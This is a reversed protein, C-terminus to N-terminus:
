MGHKRLIDNVTDRTEKDYSDFDFVNRVVSGIGDEPFRQLHKVVNVVERTSYPYQIEGEDAMNRLESFAKVLRSLTEEPVDPGYQRLMEMEAARSPNDIAHCSFLDGLAAFFDNGLFPFGPRNALVIIRFDPHTRLLAKTDGDGQVQHDHPVIRRGDSLIMQGSEVLTKLVCTVHTPAKDAEDIVLVHGAEVAKVLPSDEHVILGERVTPQLTLSQVTTDRHLQLYERPRNLLNLLRDVLKNKGVGQNGILLLHEGLLLDQLMAEMTALNQQTDYFLTEPIKTKALPAYLPASTKGITLVGDRIRCQIIPTGDGDRIGAGALSRDSLQGLRNELAERPLAPLFRSLSAKRIAHAASEHPFKEFRRAIRILQRTSLSTTAISTLASDKSTRLAHTVEVVDKIAKPLDSSKGLLQNQQENRILRALVSMEEVKDLPRMAHFLFMSLIEPTLWQSSSSSQSGSGIAAGGSVVANAPPPEALAVIRFSDKIPLIKIADEESKDETRMANKTAAEFRDSRLLRTGDFLQLERDHVLRQLVALTGRHIRHIGDLVVMKGALAATVLPSPSWVTDGNPLTTRHQLLDRATMDQYLMLHESEYGLERALQEVVVSKGCGRPGILCVDRGASFSTMIEALLSDQYGTPVYQQKRLEEQQVDRSGCRVRLLHQAGGLSVKVEALRNPLNAGEAMRVREIRGAAPDSAPRPTIGLSTMTEEMSRVGDEALFVRYPYLREVAAAPDISPADKLVNALDPLSDVPFDPLGLAVAENTLLTHALTLIRTLKEMVAVNKPGAISELHELQAKFSM